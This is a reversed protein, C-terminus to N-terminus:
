ADRRGYSAILGLSVIWFIIDLMIYAAYILLFAHHFDPITAFCWFFFGTLLGYICFAVLFTVFLARRCKSQGRHTLSFYPWIFLSNGFVILGILFGAIPRLVNEIANM